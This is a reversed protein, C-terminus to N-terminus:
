EEEKTKKEYRKQTQHYYGLIFMGQEELSLRKPYASQAGEPIELKEQLSGLIKEYYIQKGRSEMKRIHSNKLKFLIPFVSAPAACAANFYRDKITANIGPNAEEQVAELVAFERGLLYATNTSNENLAMTVEEEAQNGNRLLYAKIIAVRGRTIKYIKQDKDDQEARIRGLVAHYFSVPYRGGSLISRYVSAAMHSVPKKDTTKKNVTEKLMRQLGYYVTTETEPGVLEMRDYHAKIRQLLRGLSDAYFFRVSLRAANPSLGLVYFRQEPSIENEVGPIYIPRGAEVNKFVGDVIERNDTTPEFSCAFVDQCATSGDESWYVVTIDGITTVHKKDALLANLATTYAYMAYKGVPANFSQEKGYSKFASENFSVLAAGAPQAGPVGKIKRHIRSVSTKQGTVLCVGESGEMTKEYYDEWAQMVEQDAHVYSGETLFVLNGGALIGDLEESLAPHEMAEEPKWTEFFKKVANAAPSNAARLVELHKEKACQFCEKAREPKGKNDVGLFYGSHHCLFNSITGSSLTEREPVELVQPEWVSKKGKEREIKVPLVHKLEGDNSLELAYSVREKCWGPRTIEGKEALTEYHRVLSQLIM